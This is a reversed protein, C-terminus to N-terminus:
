VISRGPRGPRELGRVVVSGAVEDCRCGLEAFATEYEIPPDRGPPRAGPSQPGVEGGLDGTRAAPEDAAKTRIGVRELGVADADPGLDDLRVPSDGGLDRHRHRGTP